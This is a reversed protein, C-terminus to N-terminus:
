GAVKGTVEGCDLMSAGYYPNEVAEYRALWSGERGDVMPCVVRFLTGVHPTPFARVAQELRDSVQALERRLAALDSTGAMATARPRMADRTRRWEAAAAADVGTFNAAGLAAELAGAARRAAAADDRTLALTVGLYATVVRELEREATASLRVPVRGHDTPHLQPLPAPAM